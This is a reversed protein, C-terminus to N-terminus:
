PGHHQREPGPVAAEWRTAARVVGAALWVPVTLRSVELWNELFAMQLLLALAILTWQALVRVTGRNKSAIWCNRIAKLYIIAVLVLGAFGLEAPLALYSFWPAATTSAGFAFLTAVPLTYLAAVDTVYHDSNFFDRYFQNALDDRGAVSFTRFGRSAYTGPGTGVVLVEPRSEILRGYNIIAQVKGSEYVEDARGPVQFVERWKLEPLLADVAYFLGVMLAAGVFAAVLGRAVRGSVVLYTLVWTLFIFPLLARFQALLIIVVILGQLMVIGLLRVFRYRPASPRSLIIVNWTMLFFTMQYANGGFTGSVADPNRTALFIPLDLFLVVAIQLWGVWLLVKVLFAAIERGPQLAYALFMFALPELLGVVFLSAAGPHLRDLNFFTSIAMVFVLGLALPEFGSRRQIAPRRRATFLVYLAFGILIPYDLFNAWGPLLSLKNTFLRTVFRELVIAGLM